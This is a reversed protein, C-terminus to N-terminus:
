RILVSNILNLVNVFDGASVGFEFFVWVVDVFGCGDFFVIIAPVFGIELGFFHSMGCLKSFEGKWVDFVASNGM